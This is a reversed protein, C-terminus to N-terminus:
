IHTTWQSAGAAAEIERAITLHHATHIACFRVWEVNSLYGLAPHPFRAPCAAVAAAKARLDAWAAAAPDLAARMEELTRGAPDIREPAKVMGRPFAGSTLVGAAAAVASKDRDREPEALSRAIGRAIGFAAMVAHGAQQGCSWDSTPAHRVEARLPDTLIERLASWQQEVKDLDAALDWVGVQWPPTTMEFRDERTPPAPAVRKLRAAHSM